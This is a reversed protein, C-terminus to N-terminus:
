LHHSEEDVTEFKYKIDAMEGSVSNAQEYLRTFQAGRSTAQKSQYIVDRLGHKALTARTWAHPRERRLGLVSTM